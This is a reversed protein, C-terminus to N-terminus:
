LYLFIFIGVNSILGPVVSFGPSNYTYTASVVADHEATFAQALFGGLSHGTVAIQESVGLKGNTILSQYFTELSNYQSAGLNTGLGAINVVDVLYDIGWHSGETGRIGLIKEGTPGGTESVRKFLVASFGDSLEQQALVRWSSDFKAAQSSTFKALQYSPANGQDLHLNEAYSAFAIESYQLYEKITPM